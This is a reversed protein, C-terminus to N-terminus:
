SAAIAALDLVQEERTVRFGLRRLCFRLGERLSRLTVVGQLELGLGVIIQAVAPQIGTIVCRAGLLRVARMVRLLHDATATDVTDVGTLDVIAFRAGTRSVAELLTNKMDAARVSDVLGVVPMTVIDDWVQIIPTSTAATIAEQQLFRRQLEEELRLGESLDRAVIAAATVRGGDSIPAITLQVPVSSGDSRRLEGEGEWQGEAIAAPIWEGILQAAHPSLQDVTLGHLEDTARDVLRLGSGNVHLVAGNPEVLAAFDALGAFMAKFSAVNSRPDASM